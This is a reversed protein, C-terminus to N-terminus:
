DNMAATIAWSVLLIVACVSGSLVWSEITASKLESKLKEIEENKLILLDTKYEWDSQLMLVYNWDGMTLLIFQEGDIEVQRPVSYVNLVCLFLLTCILFLKTKM